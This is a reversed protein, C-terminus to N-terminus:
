AFGDFIICGVSFLWELTYKYYEDESLRRFANEGFTKNMNYPPDAIVLDAFAAPLLPMIELSNGIITKNEIDQATVKSEISLCRRLYNEGQELSLDITKNRSSKM